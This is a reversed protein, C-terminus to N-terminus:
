GGLGLRRAVWSSSGFTLLLISISSAPMLIAAVLPSLNGQLAFFLGIANYVLSLVFSALVIKKNARCLRVFEPLRHLQDAELIADSAPTFHNTNEAIAIGVDAQQLAVADNLGDGLMMVRQGQQQLQEIYQRKEHPRQGFLMQAQDGFMKVLNDREAHTDGSLVSLKFRRALKRALQHLGNRYRNGVTFCGLYGNEIAVHVQTGAGPEMARGLVFLASGLAVLEGNVFGEIGHGPTEKFGNVGYGPQQGLGQAIARSLPHTSQGALAAVMAAQVPSLTQGEYALQQGGALTLTGTKDFVIHGANAMAEITHANRLYMKNRALIRLINGNTFTNGLLLACPCAVILVTTVVNWARVGDRFGWYLAGAVALGLVAWTFYRSIADAFPHGEEKTDKTNAKNWLQTLYSQAVEKITLVEINGGTQRGGAYVLEGMEKAVPLSEGTVFSYDVLAKGRTLIGDAPILEGHHIRLTDNVKIDPLPAQKEGTKGVVTVAIPFYARYDRDFSLHRYTKQQLVRGVLMFFVIGAMSDFYGTGTATAVEYLSRLFTILIALAIPADINLYRQRLGKWAAKFFPQASFLLVPLALLLNLIRFAGQLARESGHAADLGLYEPFSMLMINAFCFGAVGLQYVMTKPFDPKPGGLDNLSIYPEYGISCLLEALKRMSFHTHKFVVAVEKRPFDVTAAVVHPEIRHLHELLYLCSSCHIQPLYFVVHTETDNRFRLLKEQIAPTDLFAFKGERPPKRLNNGPRDNLQYYGCLDSQNLINYVTQCGQCCFHKDTAQIADTGCDEGCHYCQVQQHTSVRM